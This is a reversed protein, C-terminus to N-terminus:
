RLKSTRLLYERIVTVICLRRNPAYIEYMEQQQFCPRTTKLKDGFRIKLVHDTLTLNRIDILQMSQGRQGTLLWVSTITKYTLFKLNLKKIPSLTKLFILVIDPDGVVNNRLLRPRLNFMGKLLRIVLPHTGVPKGYMTLFTSLASSASKVASYGLGKTFLYTLFELVVDIDLLM